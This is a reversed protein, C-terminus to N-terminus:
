TPRVYTNGAFACSVFMKAEKDPPLRFYGHSQIYINHNLKITPKFKRKKQELSIM